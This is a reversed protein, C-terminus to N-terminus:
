CRRPDRRSARGPRHRARVLDGFEAGAVVANARAPRGASIPGWPAPIGTEGRRPRAPNLGFPASRSRRGPIDCTRDFTPSTLCGRLAEFERVIPRSRSLRRERASTFSKGFPQASNAPFRRTRQAIKTFSGVPSVFVGWATLLRARSRGAALRAAPDPPWPDAAFAGRSGRTSPAGLVARSRGSRRSVIAIAAARAFRWFTPFRGHFGQITTREHQPQNGTECDM